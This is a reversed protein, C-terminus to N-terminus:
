LVEESVFGEGVVRAGERIEFNVNLILKSYDVGFSGYTLQVRNSIHEGFPAEQLDNFQVGLYKKTGNVVLHPRYKTGFPPNERVGAFFWVEVPITRFSIEKYDKSTFNEM